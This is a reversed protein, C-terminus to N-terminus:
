VYEEPESTTTGDIITAEPPIEPTHAASDRPERELPSRLEAGVRANQRPLTLRFSSGRGPESWVDLTGGHQQADELAIALGLGTGGITRQRSPDARWFRDFARESQDHTMGLGWDRVTLAVATASSDVTLLIPRGEGHEIANGVLNGVIRRVRRQDMPVTSYGGPAYLYLTTGKQAALAAMAGATDEVLTVLSSPELSLHVSGADYRSIELLDSLLLEFRETQTHLLEATRKTAPPFDDRQDYLVDGALRITTLPTRLEHSVDSVFRQQIQSLTALESIQQQLSDAMRNFSTALTALEDEGTVPIREELEGRALKASTDAVLKVPGAVMRLVGWTVAGVLVLLVLGGLALANQVSQLTAETDSLNFGIYIEYISGEPLRLQSGVIVGPDTGDDSALATAQWWQGQAHDQVSTRLEDSVNAKTFAPSEFDQPAISSPEQGPARYGAVLNTEASQTIETRATAMLAQLEVRTQATSSDFIRQASEVARQADAQAQVTRDDYLSSGIAITMYGSTILVAAASLVLTVTVSRFQLSRRFSRLFMRPWSRWSRLFGLFRDRAAM